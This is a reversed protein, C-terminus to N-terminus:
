PVNQQGARKETRNEGSATCDVRSMVIARVGIVMDPSRGLTFRIGPPFSFLVTIVNVVFAQFIFVFLGVPVPAALMALATVVQNASKQAFQQIV